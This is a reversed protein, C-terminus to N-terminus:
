LLCFQQFSQWFASYDTATPQVTLCFMLTLLHQVHLVQLHLSPGLFTGSSLVCSFVLFVCKVMDLRGSSVAINAQLLDSSLFETVTRLQLRLM